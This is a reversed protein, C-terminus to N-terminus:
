EGDPVSYDRFLGHAYWLATSWALPAVRGRLIETAAWTVLGLPVLTGLGVLGRSGHRVRQDLDRMTQAAAAGLTAGGGARTSRRAAAPRDNTPMRTHRAVAAVVADPATADPAYHVLLSRTRPSWHAALVGPVTGVVETLGAGTAPEPLRLRLRGPIDHVVAIRDRTAAM